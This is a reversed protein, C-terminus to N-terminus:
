HLVNILYSFTLATSRNKSVSFIAIVALSFSLVLGDCNLANRCVCDESSLRPSMSM